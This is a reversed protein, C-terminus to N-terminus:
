LLPKRGPTCMVNFDYESVIQVSLGAEHYRRAKDLERTDARTGAVVLTTRKTVRETSEGGLEEVRESLVRRADSCRGAFAVVEGDFPRAASSPPAICRLTLGLDSRLEEFSAVGRERMAALTVYGGAKADELAHHHRFQYGIHRCLNALSYGRQAFQRWTRRAVEASDFWAWRPAAVGWDECARHVATRDFHTHHLVPAGGIFRELQNLAGPFLPASAVDDAQIGHIDTLHEAFYQDPNILTYHEDVVAGREFRACGVSCISGPHPNATEVDLAVFQDAM